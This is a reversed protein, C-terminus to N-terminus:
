DPALFGIVTVVFMVGVVMVFYVLTLALLIWRRGRGLEAARTFGQSFGVGEMVQVPVVVFWRVFIYLAFTGGAAIVLFGPLGIMAIIVIPVGMVFGMAFSAAVVRGARGFGRSLLTSTSARTGRLDQFTAYTTPTTIVSYTVIGLISSLFSEGNGTADGTLAYDIGAQIITVAIAILVMPGFNRGLVGFSLSLARGITLRVGDPPLAVQVADIM